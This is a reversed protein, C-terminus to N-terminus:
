MAHYDEMILQARKIGQLDKLLGLRESQEESANYWLAKQYTYDVWVSIPMTGAFVAKMFPTTEALTHKDKTLEKLSM